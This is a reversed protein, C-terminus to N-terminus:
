ADRSVFDVVIVREFEQEEERRWPAIMMRVERPEMKIATSTQMANNQLTDMAFVGGLTSIM